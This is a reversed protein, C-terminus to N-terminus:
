VSWVRRTSWPASLRCCARASSNIAGSNWRLHRHRCAAEVGRGPALQEEARAHEEGPGKDRPDCTGFAAIRAEERDHKATGKVPQRRDSRDAIGVPDTQATVLRHPQVPRCSCQREVAEEGEVWRHGMQVTEVLRALGRDDM